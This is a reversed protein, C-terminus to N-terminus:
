FQRRVDAISDRRSQRTHWGSRSGRQRRMVRVAGAFPVVVIYLVFLVIESQVQAAAHAFRRWRPWLGPSETAVESHLDAQTERASVAATAFWGILLLPYAWAVYTGTPHIKLLSSGLAVVAAILALEQPTRQRALRFSVAVFAFFAVFVPTVFSGAGFLPANLWGRIGARQGWFSFPSFGYHRPDTHHGFTDFLITAVLGRGPDARSLLLVVAGCTVCATLFGLLFARRASPRHWYYGLWAPAMFAPYFGTAAALALAVGSLSPRSLLAFAVLTMATPAIHSIYTMGSIFFDEGGVGLVFASGCYLAVLAWAVEVGALARAAVYLAFTGVLHFAITCLKTALAPPLNYTASAGLQPRDPSEVNMRDPALAVQFPLHAVYLFPGYAAGASGTLLPDGYPLRHRERLRQAGLNAFFGVDDPERALAAAMDCGVLLLALVALPRVGLSPRWSVVAPHSVRRLARAILVINLVFVGIFVWDMLRVYVPDSLLRLFRIIEFMCFALLQLVLLDINRPNRLCDFDFAVAVAVILSLWIAGGQSPLLRRLFQQGAPTELDNWLVAITHRLPPAPPVRRFTPTYVETLRGAPARQTLSLLLLLLAAVVSVAVIFRRWAIM